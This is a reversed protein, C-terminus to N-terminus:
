RANGQIAPIPEIIPGEVTVPKSCVNSILTNGNFIVQILQQPYLLHEKYKECIDMTTNMLCHSSSASPYCNIDQGDMQVACSKINANFQNQIDSCAIRPYVCEAMQNQVLPESCGANTTVFVSPTAPYWGFRPPILNSASYFISEDIVIEFSKPSYYINNEVKSLIEISDIQIHTVDSKSFEYIFPSMLNINYFQQFEVVESFPTIENNDHTLERIYFGNIKISNLYLLSANSETFKFQYRTTNLRGRSGEGINFQPSSTNVIGVGEGGMTTVDGADGSPGTSVEM